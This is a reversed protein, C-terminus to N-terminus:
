LSLAKCKTYILARERERYEYVCVYAGFDEVLLMNLVSFDNIWQYSLSSM